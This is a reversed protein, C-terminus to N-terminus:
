EGIEGYQKMLMRCHPCKDYEFCCRGSFHVWKKTEDAFEHETTTEPILGECEISKEKLREYFPCRAHVDFNKYDM